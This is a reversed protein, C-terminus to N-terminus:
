APLGARRGLSSAGHALSDMDSGDGLQGVPIQFAAIETERDGVVGLRNEIGRDVAPWQPRDRRKALVIRQGGEDILFAFGKQCAVPSFGDAM